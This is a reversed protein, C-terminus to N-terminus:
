SAGIPTNTGKYSQLRLGDTADFLAIEKQLEELMKVFNPVFLTVTVGHHTLHRACSVGQAGQLHPGCLVVVTPM